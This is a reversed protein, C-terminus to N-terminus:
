FNHTCKQVEFLVYFKFYKFNTYKRFGLSMYFNRKHNDKLHENFEISM